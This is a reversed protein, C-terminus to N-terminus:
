GIQDLSAPGGGDRVTDGIKRHSRAHLWLDVGIKLGVLIALLPLPSGLMMVPVGGAIITIHLLVIRNYPQGMLDGTSLSRFERKGIYNQVFSIGHSIFLSFVPWHLGEPGNRWAETVVSLLLQVFILPGFWSSEPFVDSVAGDGSVFALLFLGHVACFGGFHVAFFPIAFLKGLHLPPAEVQLLAIKLINYVGVVLNEAWYVLLIMGVDWGFAFVGILPLLNALVLATTSLRDTPFRM